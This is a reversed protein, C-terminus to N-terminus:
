VYLTPKTKCLTINLGELCKETKNLDVHEAYAFM